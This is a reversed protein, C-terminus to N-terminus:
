KGALHYVLEYIVPSVIKLLGLLAVLALLKWFDTECFKDFIFRATKGVGYSAYGVWSLRKVQTTLNVQETEIKGIRGRIESRFDLDAEHWEDGKQVVSKLLETQTENEAAISSIQGQMGILRDNNTNVLATTKDLEAKIDERHSALKTDLAAERQDASREIALLIEAETLGAIDHIPLAM